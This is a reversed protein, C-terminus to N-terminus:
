RLGNTQMHNCGLEFHGVHFARTVRSTLRASITGIVDLAAHRRGLGNRGSGCFEPALGRTVGTLCVVVSAVINLLSVSQRSRCRPM